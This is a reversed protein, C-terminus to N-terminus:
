AIANILSGVTQGNLNVTPAPAKVAASQDDKDGDNKVERGAKQAEGAEPQQKIQAAYGANSSSISSISM